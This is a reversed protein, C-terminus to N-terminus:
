AMVIVGWIISACLSIRSETNECGSKQTKIAGEESEPIVEEPKNVRKMKM